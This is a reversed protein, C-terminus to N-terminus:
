TYISHMYICTSSRTHTPTHNLYPSHTLSHTLSLLLSPISLDISLTFLFFVLDLVIHLLYCASQACVLLVQVVARSCVPGVDPSARGITEKGLPFYPRVHRDLLGLIRTLASDLENRLAAKEDLTNRLERFRNASIHAHGHPKSRRQSDEQNPDSHESEREAAAGSGTPQVSGPHAQAHQMEEAAAGPSSLGRVEIVQEFYRALSSVCSAIVALTHLASADVALGPTIPANELWMGLVQEAIELAGKITLLLNEKKSDEGDSELQERQASAGFCHIPTVNCNAQISPPLRLHRLVSIAGCLLRTQTHLVRLICISLPVCLPCAFLV